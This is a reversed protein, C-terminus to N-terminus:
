AATEDTGVMWLQGWRDRLVGFGASWSTPAFPMRVEGGEALRDFVEHAADLDALSVMVHSSAPVKNRGPMDDSAMLYQGHFGLGAHMILDGPVDPMGEGEPAESFPIMSLIEADLIEAYATMAERCTGDFFLYPSISPM